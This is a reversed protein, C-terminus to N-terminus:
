LFLTLIGTYGYLRDNLIEGRAYYGILPVPGLVEEVLAMEEKASLGYGERTREICSIYLAAKPAFGNQERMTRNRIDVLMRSLDSRITEIDRHVFLLKDGEYVANSIVLWGQDPDIGALNRVMYDNTDSGPVSFAVHIEGKALDNYETEPLDETQKILTSDDPEKENEDAPASKARAFIRLDNQFVDFAKEGDLEAVVSGESKTVEHPEGIPLCGQTLATTVRVSRSFLVGSFGGSVIHEPLTSIHKAPTSIGGILYANTTRNLEKLLYNNDETSPTDGHILALFADREKLWPKFHQKATEFDPSSSPFVCFDEPDLKCLLIVLAPKDSFVEGNACVTPAINAVWDEINTVSQFLTLVSGLDDSLPQTAYLLALSFDKDTEEYINLIQRSVDRWDKGSASICTFDRSTRVTMVRVPYDFYTSHYLPKM